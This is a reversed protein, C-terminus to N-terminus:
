ELGMRRVQLVIDHALNGALGVSDRDVGGGALLDTM